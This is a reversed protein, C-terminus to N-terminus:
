GGFHHIIKDLCYILERNNPIDEPHMWSGNEFHDDLESQLYNRHEQLNALTIADAAEFPLIIGDETRTISM